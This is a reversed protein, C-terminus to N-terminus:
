IKAPQWGGCASELYEAVTLAVDERWPAAAVQVAIPLGDSSQGCRVVAAPWGTLNHTMTYSYGPFVDEAISRGHPVAASFSVPSLLVDFDNLFRYLDQRFGDLREWFKAFGAVDTRCPELKSLWGELLPHTQRSGIDKLFDRLGDGGDPGLMEMELRYSEEVRPPRREEVVRAVDALAKAASQVVAATEPEAALIGNDTFFAVRLGALTDPRREFPMPIVTQDRGDTGLLLPMMTWLDEVRRAMPGIQWLTEIWNGAPPVHGTRALRGSTPKISTIGCYHAPLRVSGAADSGLGFPSGCAAILASDGGSSGGSTRQPSYPNNTRGFLLNDSEFAFLLDPLNTRALPIAGAARLRAVLTADEASPERRRYGVTGASCATGAVEISDKISFPVGALPGAIKRADVDRAASLAPEALIGIAANLKPNVEGIRALHAEVLE